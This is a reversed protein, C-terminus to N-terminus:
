EDSGEETDTHHKSREFTRRIVTLVALSLLTVLLAIGIEGFGIAVGAAAVVWLGAATTLGHVSGREHLIAGAGIFGIGVIVAALVRLPDMGRSIESRAELRMAIMAFMAAGLAVLMHTRLGAPKEHVEREYGILGGCALAILLKVVVGVFEGITLSM